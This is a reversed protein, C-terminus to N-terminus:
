KVVVVFQKDEFKFMEGLEYIYKKKDLKYHKGFYLTKLNIIMNLNLDKEKTEDGDLCSYLEIHCGEILQKEIFAFLERISKPHVDCSLEYIYPLTFAHKIDSYGDTLRNISIGYADEEKEYITILKDKKQNQDFSAVKSLPVLTEKTGFSGTPLEYPSGIYHHITM